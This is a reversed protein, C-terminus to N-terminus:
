DRPSPSTYLLCDTTLVSGSLIASSKGCFVRLGIERAESQEVKEIRGELVEIETSRGDFVLADAADAGLKRALSVADGALTLLDDIM